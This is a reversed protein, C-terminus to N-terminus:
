KQRGDVVTIALVGDGLPPLAGATQPPEYYPKVLLAAYSTGTHTWSSWRGDPHLPHKTYINPQVYWLNLARREYVVVQLNPELTGSVKGVLLYRPLSGDPDFPPLATIKIQPVPATQVAHDRLATRDLNLLSKAM